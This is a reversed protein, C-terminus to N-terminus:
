ISYKDLGCEASSGPPARWLAARVRHKAPAGKGKVHKLQVLLDGNEEGAQREADEWGWVKTRVLYYCHHFCCM